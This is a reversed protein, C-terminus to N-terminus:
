ADFRVARAPYGESFDPGSAEQVVIFFAEVYESCVVVSFTDM